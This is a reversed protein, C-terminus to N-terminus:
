LDVIESVWDRFLWNAIYLFLDLIVSAIVDRGSRGTTVGNTFQSPQYSSRWSGPEVEAWKREQKRELVKLFTDIRKVIKEGQM